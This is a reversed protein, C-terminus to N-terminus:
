DKEKMLDTLRQQVYDLCIKFLFLAFTDEQLVGPVIDIFDTNGDPSHVMAKKKMDEKADDYCYCNRQPSWISPTNAEYDRHICNFAKINGHSEVSLLFILIQPDFKGFINQNKGLFIGFLFQIYM